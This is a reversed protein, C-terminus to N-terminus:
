FQLISPNPTIGSDFCLTYFTWWSVSQYLWYPVTHITAYMIHKARSRPLILSHPDGTVKGQLGGDHTMAIPDWLKIM